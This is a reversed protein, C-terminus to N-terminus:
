RARYWTGPGGRNVLRGYAELLDQPRKRPEFKSAYLIVPREAALGLERRLRERSASAEQARKAFFENDVCYPMHFIREPAIGHALYYARNSSGIALFADAVRRLGAFFLQKANRRLRSREASTHTAEDRIFVKLGNAKACLMAALNIARAYGHVWLVDFRSRRLSSAFGWNLPRQATIPGHRWLGPLFESRYGTILPVDWQISQGFGQDRYSRLSMDSQFFVTLDIDPQASILRLLPAQYQIPHTVLYAIRYKQEVM